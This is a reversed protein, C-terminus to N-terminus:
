RSVLTLDLSALADLFPIIHSFNWFKPTPHHHILLLDPHSNSSRVSSIFYLLHRTVKNIRSGHMVALLPRLHEVSVEPLLIEEEDTEGTM